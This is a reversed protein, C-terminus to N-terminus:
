PAVTFKYSGQTHHTDVSVVHWTVIYTGPTLPRGLRLHMTNPPSFIPRDTAVAAGSTRAVQVGSFAPVLDETFTLDLEAPAAAVTMGVGPVAHDLFAHAFAQSDLLVSALGIATIFSFIRKMINM